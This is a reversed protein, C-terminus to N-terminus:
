SIQCSQERERVPGSRNRQSIGSTSAPEAKPIITFSFYIRDKMELRVHFAARFKFELLCTPVSVTQLGLMEIVPEKEPIVKDTLPIDLLMAQM